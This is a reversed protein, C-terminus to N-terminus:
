AVPTSVLRLAGAYDHAELHPRLTTALARAETEGDPGELVLRRYAAAFGTSIAFGDSRSSEEQAAIMATDLLDDFLATM